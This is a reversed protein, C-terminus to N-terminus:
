RSSVVHRNAPRQPKLEEGPAMGGKSMSWVTQAAPNRPTGAAMPARRRMTSIPIVFPRNITFPLIPKNQATNRGQYSMPTFADLRRATSGFPARFQSQKSRGSSVETVRSSHLSTSFPSERSSPPRASSPRITVNILSPSCSRTRATSVPVSPPRSPNMRNISARLGGLSVLPISAEARQRLSPVRTSIPRIDAVPPLLKSQLAMRATEASPALPSAPRTPVVLRKFPVAAPIRTEIKPKSTGVAPGVVPTALSYVPCGLNKRNTHSGIALLKRKRLLLVFYTTTAHNHKKLKLCKIVYDLPLEFHSLQAIVEQDLDGSRHAMNDCGTCSGSGCGVSDAVSKGNCLRSVWPSGRVMDLSLRSRPETTLIGKILHRLDSAVHKPISFEGAIIKRYLQPTSRDEFPLFGCVMAYLIIGVSWIDSLQADYAKGAIMEPSAYCPSGCATRLCGGEHFTNSLGFDVIKINKDDDLLLNEPKLDRHAVGKSHMHHVGALIQLFFRCAEAEELKKKSVIYDFLEGGSAYEMILYLQRPTEVIEYLQIIHPHNVVKLIHIERSVREIDASDVIKQKELVKIAVKMGTLKHCGLKVKGFTGSGITKELTYHGISRPKSPTTGSM